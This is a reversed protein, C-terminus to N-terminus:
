RDLAAEQAVNTKTASTLFQEMEAESMDYEESPGNKYEEFERKTPLTVKPDVLYFYLRKLMTQRARFLVMEGDKKPKGNVKHVLIDKECEGVDAKSNVLKMYMRMDDLDWSMDPEFNSPARSKIVCGKMTPAQRADRKLFWNAQAKPLKIRQFPPVSITIPLQNEAELTGDAGMVEKMAGQMTRSVVIPDKKPNPVLETQWGGDRKSYKDKVKVNDPADPNGTVNAIWIDESGEARFEGGIKVESVLGQCKKLFEEAVEAPVNQESNTDTRPPLVWHKGKVVAFQEYLTNNRITKIEM